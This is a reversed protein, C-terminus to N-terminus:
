ARALDCADGALGDGRDLAERAVARQMGQLLCEQRLLGALAAVAQGADKNRRRRQQLAIRCGGPFLDCGREVGMQAAASDVVADDRRDAVIAVASGSVLPIEFIDRVGSVNRAERDDFGRVRGGFIPPRSLLAILMGPLDLDLSFKQSGDYKTSSDLRRVPKGILQFQSASKLQVVGPVPRRTADETLEAYRASRNRPGYVVSNKARCQDATVGWRDAATAILMARTRAGLERYQQFSNAISCSGGIMQIGILPDKYPEGAPSLQAIVQSWDADLEEALIMPLATQAGQGVELRNVTIVIKGDLKINVFADPPYVKAPPAQNRERAAAPLDLYLSVLLGGTAAASAFLFSRRNVRMDNEVKPMARM